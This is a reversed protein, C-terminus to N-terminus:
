IFDFDADFEVSYPKLSYDVKCGCWHLKAFSKGVFMLFHYIVFSMSFTWLRKVVMLTWGLWRIEMVLLADGLISLFLLFYTLCLLSSILKMGNWRLSSTYIRILRSEQWATIFALDMILYTDGSVILVICGWHMLPFFYFFLCPLDRWTVIFGLRDLKSCPSLYSLDCLTIVVDLWRWRMNSLSHPLSWDQDILFGLLQFCYSEDLSPLVFDVFFIHFTKGLLSRSLSARDKKFSFPFLHQPECIFFPHFISSEGRILDLAIFFEVLMGIFLCSPRAMLCLTYWSSTFDLGKYVFCLLFILGLSSFFSFHRTKSLCIVFVLWTFCLFPRFERLNRQLSSIPPMSNWICWTEHLEEMLCCLLKLRALYQSLGLGYLIAFKSLGYSQARNNTQPSKKSDMYSKQSLTWHVEQLTALLSSEM